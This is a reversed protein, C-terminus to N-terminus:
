SNIVFSFCNEKGCFALDVFAKKEIMAGGLVQKKSSSNYKKM